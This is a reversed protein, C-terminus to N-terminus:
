NGAECIEKRGHGNANFIDQEMNPLYLALKKYNLIYVSIVFYYKMNSAEGRFNIEPCIM